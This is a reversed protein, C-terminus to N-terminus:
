IYDYNGKMTRLFFWSIISVENENNFANKGEKMSCIFCFFQLSFYGLNDEKFEFYQLVLCNLPNLKKFYFDLLYILM